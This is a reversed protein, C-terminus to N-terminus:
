AVKKGKITEKLQGIIESFDELQNELHQITRYSKRANQNNNENLADIQIMAQNIEGINSTQENTSNSIDGILLNLSKIQMLIDNLNKECEHIVYNGKSVKENSANVYKTFTLKSNNVTSEVKQMSEELLKSIEHASEGSKAALNGIEEAVVAFGKGHEGARAAEVSANFSLLKTQFVIENIVKTKDNIDDIVKIFNTIEHNNVDIANEIEKISLSIERMMLTAESMANQANSASQLTEDSAKLSKQTSEANHIIIVNTEELATATQQLSITQQGMNTELSTSVELINTAIDKLKESGESINTSIDELLSNIHKTFFLGVLVGIFISTLVVVGLLSRDKKSSKLSKSTIEEIYSKQITLLKNVSTNYADAAIPCDVLFINIMEENALNTHEDFLKIAKVGIAKLNNWDKQVQLFVEKQEPSKLTKEYETQYKEYLAIHKFVEDIAKKGQQEKIGVLGITRLAIRTKTFELYMNDITAIEPIGEHSILRLNSDLNIFGRYSIFGAIFSFTLLLSCLLFLKKKISMSYFM